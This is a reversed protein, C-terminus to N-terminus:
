LSVFRQVPAEFFFNQDLRTTIRRGIVLHAGPLHEQRNSATQRGRQVAQKSPQNVKQQSREFQVIVSKRRHPAGAEAEPSQAKPRSPTFFSGLHPPLFTLLPPRPATIFTELSPPRPSAVELLWRVLARSTGFALLGAFTIVLLAGYFSRAIEPSHPLGRTARPWSPRRLGSCRRSPPHGAVSYMCEIWASFNSPYLGTPARKNHSASTLYQQKTGASESPSPAPVRYERGRKSLQGLAPMREREQMERASTKKKRKTGARRVIRCTSSRAFGTQYWRGPGAEPYKWRWGSIWYPSGCTLSSTSMHENKLRAGPALVRCASTLSLATCRVMCAQLEGLPRTGEMPDSLTPAGQRCSVLRHEPVPVPWTCACSGGTANVDTRRVRGLCGRPLASAKQWTMQRGHRRREHDDDKRPAM